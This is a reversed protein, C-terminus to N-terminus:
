SCQSPYQLNTTNADGSVEERGVFSASPRLNYVQVNDPTVTGSTDQNGPGPHLGVSAQDDSPAAPASAEQVVPPGQLIPLLGEGVGTEQLQTKEERNLVARESESVGDEWEEEKIANEGKFFRLAIPLVAVVVNPNDSNLLDICRRRALDFIQVDDIKEVNRYPLSNASSEQYGAVLYGSPTQDKVKKRRPDIRKPM